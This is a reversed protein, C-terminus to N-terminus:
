GARRIRRGWAWVVFFDEWLVDIRKRDGDYQIKLSYKITNRHM